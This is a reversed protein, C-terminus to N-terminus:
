TFLFGPWFNSAYLDHAGPESQIKKGFSIADKRFQYLSKLLFIFSRPNGAYIGELEHSENTAQRRTPISLIARITIGRQAYQLHLTEIKAPYTRM